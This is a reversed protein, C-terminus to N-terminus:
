GYSECYRFSANVNFDIPPNFQRHIANPVIVPLVNHEHPVLISSDVRPNEVTIDNIYQKLDTRVRRRESSHTFNDRQNKNM